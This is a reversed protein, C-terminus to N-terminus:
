DKHIASKTPSLCALVHSMFHIGINIRRTMMRLSKAGRWQRVDLNKFHQQVVMIGFCCNVWSWCWFSGAARMTLEAQNSFSQSPENLFGPFTASARASISTSVSSLSLHLISMAQWVSSLTLGGLDEPSDMFLWVPKKSSGTQQGLASCGVQGKAPPWSM